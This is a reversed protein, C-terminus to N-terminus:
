WGEDSLIEERREICNFEGGLAAYSILKVFDESVANSARVKAIELLSLMMAVDLPCFNVTKVYASWLRAIIDYNDAATGFTKNLMEEHEERAKEIYGVKDMM